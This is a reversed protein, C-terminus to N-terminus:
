GFVRVSEELSWCGVDLKEFHREKDILQFSRYFVNALGDCALGVIVVVNVSAFAGIAVGTPCM